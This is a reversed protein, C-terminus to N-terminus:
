KDTIQDPAIWMATESKIRRYQCEHEIKRLSPLAIERDAALRATFVDRRWHAGHQIGPNGFRTRQASRLSVVQRGLDKPAIERVFM